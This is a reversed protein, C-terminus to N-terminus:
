KWARAHSVRKVKQGSREEAIKEFVLDEELELAHLLLDYAKTALPLRDRRALTVVARHVPGSVSLNIRQKETPM